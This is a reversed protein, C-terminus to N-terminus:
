TIVFKPIAFLIAIKSTRPITWDETLIEVGDYNLKADSGLNLISKTAQDYGSQRAVNASRNSEPKTMNTSMVKMMPKKKAQNISCQSCREQM